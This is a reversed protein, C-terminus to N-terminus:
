NSTSVIVDDSTYHLDIEDLDFDNRSFLSTCRELEILEDLLGPYENDKAAYAYIFLDEIMENLKEYEAKYDIM